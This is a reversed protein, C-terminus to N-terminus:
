SINVKLNKGNIIINSIGDNNDPGYKCVEYCNCIPKKNYIENPSAFCPSPPPNGNLIRILKTLFIHQLKDSSFSRIVKFNPRHKTILFM